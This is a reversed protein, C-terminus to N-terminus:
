LINNDKEGNYIKKILVVCQYLTVATIAMYLLLWLSFRLLISLGGTIVGIAYVVSFFLLLNRREKM